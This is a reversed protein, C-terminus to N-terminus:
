LVMAAAEELYAVVENGVICGAPGGQGKDAAACDSM